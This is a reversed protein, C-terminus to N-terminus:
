PMPGPKTPRPHYLAPLQRRDPLPSRPPGNPSFKCTTTVSSTTIRFVDNCRQPCPPYAMWYRYANMQYKELAAASSSRRLLTVREGGADSPTESYCVSSTRRRRSRERPGTASYSIPRLQSPLPKRNALIESGSEPDTGSEQEPSQISTPSSQSDAMTVDGSGDVDSQTAFQLRVLLGYQDFGFDAPLDASTLTSNPLPIWECNGEKVFPGDTKWMALNTLDVPQIPNVEAKIERYGLTQHRRLMLRNLKRVAEGFRHLKAARAFKNCYHEGKRALQYHQVVDAGWCLSVSKLPPLLKQIQKSSDVAVGVFRDWKARDEEDTRRPSQTRRIRQRYEVCEVLMVQEFATLMFALRDSAGLLEDRKQSCKELKERETSCLRIDQRFSDVLEVEEHTLLLGQDEEEASEEVVLNDTDREAM